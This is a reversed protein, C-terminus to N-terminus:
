SQLTHFEENHM